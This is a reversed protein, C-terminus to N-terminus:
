SDKFFTLLAITDWLWMGWAWIYEDPNEETPVQCYKYDFIKPYVGRSPNQRILNFQEWDDGSQIGSELRNKWFIIPPKCNIPTNEPLFRDTEYFFLGRVIKWTIRAIRSADMRNLRTGNPSVIQSIQSRVRGVLGLNEDDRMRSIIDQSIARGSNSYASLHLNYVFYDEDQQYSQNCQRHTPLTLLNSLNYESRLRRAYIQKMPVHDMSTNGEDPVLDEGCLYCISIQNNM